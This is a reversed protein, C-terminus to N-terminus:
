WLDEDDEDRFKYEKSKLSVKATLREIFEENTEDPKQVLEHEDDPTAPPSDGAM